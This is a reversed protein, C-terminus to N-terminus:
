AMPAHPVNNAAISRSHQIGVCVEDTQKKLLDMTEQAPTGDDEPYPAVTTIAAGGDPGLSFGQARSIQPSIPHQVFFYRCCFILV